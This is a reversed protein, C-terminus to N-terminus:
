VLVLEEPQELEVAADEEMGEASEGPWIRFGGTFGRLNWSGVISRQDYRGSYEVSHRGVYQKTWRAELSASDFVGDIIFQGVDDIGDGIIKGDHSFLLDLKM